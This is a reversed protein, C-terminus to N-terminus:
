GQKDTQNQKSKNHIRMNEQRIEEIIEARLAEKDSKRDSEFQRKKLIVGYIHFFLGILVSFVSLGLGIIVAYENVTSVLSAGATTAGATTTSVLLANNATHSASHTM